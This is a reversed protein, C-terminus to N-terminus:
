QGFEIKFETGKNVESTVSIKGGLIEVQSKIIFLGIGKGEIDPHFRKYLGFVQDGRKRLDIGMGNDRFLLEVKVGNLASKIEILPPVTPQRYKISNSILNYFISYLYSKLTVLESVASFDCRIEANEKDILTKISLQIDYVLDAFSVLGKRENIERKIQLILNLDKVVNDMRKVSDYLGRVLFEREEGGMGPHMLEQAAGLINAIPARLNHSVIYAFQELDKNRQTLENVMGLREIEALKRDTIDQIIGYLRVPKHENDFEVQYKSYGHRLDGSKGVFRFEFSSSKFTKFAAEIKESVFDVDEKYLISLFAEVSPNAADDIGFMALLEPSWHHVNHVMDIEWSGLRAVTHAEKLRLEGRELKRQAEELELNRKELKSVLGENYLRNAELLKPRAPVTYAEKRGNTLVDDVAAILEVMPAPKRIFKDAGIDLAMAEDSSSTYTASYIIVPIHRWRENTRITYCLAYGDTTPMLIDTIVLDVTAEDLMRLAVAGDEATIVNYGAIEFIGRNLKLIHPTDDVLLLTHKDSTKM